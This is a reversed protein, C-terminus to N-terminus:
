GHSRKFRTSVRTKLLQGLRRGTTKVSANENSLELWAKRYLPGHKRAIFNEIQPGFGRTKTIMSEGAVRYEFLIEPIYHFEWGHEVTGLWFDWDELGQIPMTGDYGGNQEWVTRRYVACADIYNWNLLRALEFGGVTWRGGKIGFYEADGYVVGVHPNTSLIAIAREIYEGRVRNDADLPLIYGGSSAAIGANRAGALGKNEQQIVRIGAAKLKRMENQTCADTSGDDVVILEVDARKLQAVSQVAEGLFAGHNFCPIVVSITPKSNM